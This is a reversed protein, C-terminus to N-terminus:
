CSQLKSETSSRHHLVPSSAQYQFQLNRFSQDDEHAVAVDKILVMTGEQPEVAKPDMCKWYKSQEVAVQYITETAIDSAVM